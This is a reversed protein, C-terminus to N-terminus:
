KILVMKKISYYIVKGTKSDGVSLKYFYLGSPLNSGDFIVEYIGTNMNENVLTAIEKGLINYVKLVTMGRQGGEYPPIAFKIKTTPNFPNPYNQYLYYRDPIEMSITTINIIDSILRRWTSSNDTGAVLYNNSVCLSMISPIIDFGQNKNIWLVGNNTSMFVGASTGAFIISNYFAFSSINLNSLGNNIETWNIGYNTSIFVGNGSTGAFLNSGSIALKSVPKDSLGTSVWNIGGNSSIFIGHNFSSVLLNSGSVAFSTINIGTPLNNAVTDWSAGLNTSRYVGGYFSGAYLNSNMFVLSVPSVSELGSNIWTVGYNLSKYVVFTAGAFINSGSIVLSRFYTQHNLGTYVWNAGDNTSVFIGTNYFTGAYLNPGASELRNVNLFTMGTNNIIWNTGNNTTIFIGGDDTGTFVKSGVSALCNIYQESLGNNILNWSIGNNSSLYMGNLYSGAFLNSGSITICSISIGLPLGTGM